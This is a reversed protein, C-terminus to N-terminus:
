SRTGLAAQVAEERGLGYLSKIEMEPNESVYLKMFTELDRMEILYRAFQYSAFYYASRRVPDTSAWEPPPKTTGLHELVERLTHSNFRWTFLHTLEHIHTANKGSMAGLYVRPNLFIIAKPDSPHQYGKWVHSPGVSDSVYVRVKSGLTATDLKLGTVRQVEEYASEMLKLFSPDITVGHQYIEVYTGSSVLQGQAIIQEDSVARRPVAADTNAACVVFTLILGLNKIMIM